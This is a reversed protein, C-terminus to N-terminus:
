GNDPPLVLVPCHSHKVVQSAVSGLLLGLFGGHGRAGVVLLEANKSEEILVESPSGGRAFRQISARETSDPCADALADELVALASAELTSPEISYAAGEMGYMAPYTWASVAHVAIGRWAAQQIAARVAKISNSSGDVGVLVYKLANSSPTNM